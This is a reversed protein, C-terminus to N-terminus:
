VEYVSINVTGSEKNKSLGFMLNYDRLSRNLFDVIKYMEAHNSFEKIAILELKGQSQRQKEGSTENMHKIDSM